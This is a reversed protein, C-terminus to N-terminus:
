LPSDFYLCRWRVLSPCAAETESRYRWMLRYVWGTRRAPKYAMGTGTQEIVTVSTARFCGPPKVPQLARGQIQVRPESARRNARQLDKVEKELQQQRAITANLLPSGAGTTGATGPNSRRSNLVAEGKRATRTTRNKCNRPSKSSADEVARPPIYGTAAIELFGSSEPSSLIPAQRNWSTVVEVDKTAAEYFHEPGLYGAASQLSPEKDRGPALGHPKRPRPGTLETTGKYQWTRSHRRKSGTHVIQGATTARGYGGVARGGSSINAPM